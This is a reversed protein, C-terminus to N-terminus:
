FGEWEFMIKKERATGLVSVPGYARGVSTEGLIFYFKVARLLPFSNPLTGLTPTM